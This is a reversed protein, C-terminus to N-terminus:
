KAVGVMTFAAWDQPNPYKEKAALMAQRLSAAKKGSRAFQRYFEVMLDATPKDPVKWLSVLVSEVGATMFSRSLGIVGDGTLRGRGTDCASLVVLSANLNMALIDLSTLLGDNNTEPAFAIAGPVGLGEIDDLLGHTALHVIDAEPLAVAIASETALSGVLAKTGLIEAIAQAEEESGPLPNLRQREEGAPAGPKYPMIPNGVVLANCSNNACSSAAGSQSGPNQGTLALSQISPATLITHKEILYKGESDLLGPFPVLFLEGQPIFIVPKEPDSPLLDAIPEIAIQYLQQLRKQPSLRKERGPKGLTQRANSVLAVIAEEAGRNRNTAAAVRTREAVEALSINPDLNVQRFGIEGTPQVVWIFLQKSLAEDFSYLVLTANQDAAVQRIEAITPEATSVRAIASSSERPNSAIREALLEVFARGRGREATELASEIQGEQVFIHQLLSYPNLEYNRINSNAAQLRAADNGKLSAIRDERKKIGAQLVAKAKPLNGSHILVLALREIVKQELIEVLDRQDLSKHNGQLIALSREYADIAGPLDGKAAYGNGVHMLVRGVGFAYDFEQYIDVAQQYSDIAQTFDEQQNAFRGIAELLDAERGRDGTERYVALSRKYSAIANEADGKQVYVEAMQRLAFGERDRNNMQRVIELNQEWLALAADLQGSERSAEARQILRRSQNALEQISHWGPIAALIERAKDEQGEEAQFTAIELLVKSRVGCDEITEATEKAQRYQGAAALQVAIREAAGIQVQAELFNGVPIAEALELAVDFIGAEAYEVATLGLMVTPFAPLASISEAVKKAQKNEGRELYYQAIELLLQPQKSENELSAVVRLADEVRGAKAYELAIGALANDRDPNGEFNVIPQRTRLDVQQSDSLPDIARAIEVARDFKERAAYQIAMQVLAENRAALYPVVWGSASAEEIAKITLYAEEEREAEIYGSAIKVLAYGIVFHDSLTQAIDRAELLMKEANEGDGAKAYSSAGAILVGVKPPADKMTAALDRVRELLKLAEQKEGAEAYMLALQALSRGRQYSDAIAETPPLILELTEKLKEGNGDRDYNLALHILRDTRFGEDQITNIVQFAADYAGAEVYTSALTALVEVGLQASSAGQLLEETQQADISQRAIKTYVNKPPYLVSPPFPLSFAQEYEGLQAYALAIAEDQKAKDEIRQAEELAREQEGLAAYLIASALQVDNQTVADVKCLSEGTERSAPAAATVTATAVAIPYAQLSCFLALLANLSIRQYKM